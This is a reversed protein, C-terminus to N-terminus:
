PAPACKFGRLHYQSIEDAVVQPPYGLSWMVDPQRDDTLSQPFVGGGGGGTGAGGSVGHVGCQLAVTGFPVLLM